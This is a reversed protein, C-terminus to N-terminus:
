VKNDQNVEFKGELFVVFVVVTLVNNTKISTGLEKLPICRKKVAEVLIDSLLVSKTRLLPFLPTRGRQDFCIPMIKKLLWFTSQNVKMLFHWSTTHRWRVDSHRTVDHLWRISWTDRWWSPRGVDHSGTVNCVRIYCPGLKGVHGCCMRHERIKRSM